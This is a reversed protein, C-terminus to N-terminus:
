RSLTLGIVGQVYRDGGETVGTAEARLGFGRRGLEIGAGLEGGIRESGFVVLGARVLPHLGEAFATRLGFRATGEREGSLKAIGLYPAIWPRPALWLEAGLLADNDRRALTGGAYAAAGWRWLSSSTTPPVASSRLVPEVVTLEEAAITVGDILFAVRAPGAAPAVLQVELRDGRPTSGIMTAGTVIAQLRAPDFDRLEIEITALTGRTLERSPWRIVPMAVPLELTAHGTPSACTIRSLGTRRDPVLVVPPAEAVPALDGRACRLGQPPEFVGGAIARPAALEAAQILLPTSPPGELGDKDVSAVTVLYSAAPLGTVELRTITGPVEVSSEVDLPSTSLAIELRYKVAGPVPGWTGRLTLPDGQWALALAGAQDWRPAPLLKIPPSPPKNAVARSGYGPALEVNGRTTALRAPKGKHNALRTEKTSDVDIM